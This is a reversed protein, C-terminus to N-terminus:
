QIDDMIQEPTLHNEKLIEQIDYRDYFKKKLGYNYVKMDSNGYFSAVKQGFGGDLIGDELTIVKTHNQKLEELLSEDIGSVFRPNILTPHIGQEKLMASLDEGIQYFDGAAIIAIEKGQDMVKYTNVNSYDIDAQGDMVGNMPLRITVPHENQRISWELMAFYEQRNTPELFIMEPINSIMSVDYLGLHTVDNLGYVGGYNLLFTVANKNISVDQSMQDYVRQIFTSNTGFVAKGGNAVIGSALATAQEEAIGVDIFQSGAELRKDLTFGMSTPVAAVIMALTPDKKMKELMFDATLTGYDPGDFSFTPKGTEVDFPMCWHWNEKHDIAPQYGHGKETHVHVVIPHDIDKIKQLSEIMVQIDNGQEVYMYDLGFAKFLNNSCTGNSERLEALNKYLGGHNEAISMENDNVLIIFNSNLESGAFDLGELAQGGSLSGDGIIAIINEHDGKLDRAKALGSALSISTSTHGINFFDHESEEPDSYGSVDNFHEEDLFAENRGTLMKHGYSQHSVDFVFKDKPSDFVYHLAITAEVFGFNPGAHGGHVSLKHLLAERIDQALIELEEKNLSKIDRPNKIKELM